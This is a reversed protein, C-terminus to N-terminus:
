QACALQRQYATTSPAYGFRDPLWAGLTKVMAAIIANHHITHSVVYAAERGWTSDLEMAPLDASVLCRLRVPRDALDAHLNMLGARLVAIEAMATTRCSEVATGRDRHDFNLQGTDAAALLARVHDLSHRVHGGVSSPMVGVPKRAYADDSLREIVEALEDLLATITDSMTATPSASRVHDITADDVFTPRMAITTM